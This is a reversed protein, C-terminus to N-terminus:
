RAAAGSAAGHIAPSRYPAFFEDLAEWAKSQPLPLFDHSLMVGDMFVQREKGGCVSWLEKVRLSNDKPALLKMVYVETDPFHDRMLSRSYTIFKDGGSYDEALLLPTGDDKVLLVDTDTHTVDNIGRIADNIRPPRCSEPREYHDKVRKHWEDRGGPVGDPTVEFTHWKRYNMDGGHVFLQHRTHEEWLATLLDDVHTTHAAANPGSWTCWVNENEQHLSTITYTPLALMRVFMDTHEDTPAEANVSINDHWMRPDVRIVAEHHYPGKCRKCTQYFVYARGVGEHAALAKSVFAEVSAHLRDGDRDSYPRNSSREGYGRWDFVPEPSTM